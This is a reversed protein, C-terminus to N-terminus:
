KTYDPEFRLGGFRKAAAVWCGGFWEPSLHIQKGGALTFWRAHGQTCGPIKEGPELRNKPLYLLGLAQRDEIM